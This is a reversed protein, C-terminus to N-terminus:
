KKTKFPNINEINFVFRIREKLSGQITRINNSVLIPFYVEFFDWIGAKLGAEFFFPSINNAGKSYDNLLINIFSKVPIISGKGPLNSTITFSSVWRSYGLSDSISSVLGGETITMQRSWFSKQSSQFRDPYFGQYLYLDRGNRASSSFRYFPYNGSSNIMTGAFLRMELGSNKGRYSYKYNLDVSTKQYTKGSEFYLLFRYPNIIGTREIQYGTQLYSLMTAPVLSEIQNLDSATTYYGYLKQSVTSTFNSNRLFVEVGIKARKFDKNGPAGFKQGEVSFSALRVISNYPITNLTIKGYGTLKNSGFSYFPMMLYNVPKPLLAANQLAIGAMFGDSHSWNASPFYILYRKDPDEITYLLQIRLPDAKPFIGSTRINNNLRYLETMKHEPDIKLEPYDPNFTNIWKKGAFGDEWRMSGISDKKLGAILLPSNMEGNNKILLKHDKYKLIKYDLRKTTGLFDDFFWRLDKDTHSEFVASLDDPGPHKGSWESYYDHMISDFLSDGLYARLYNFGQAAKDYIITAYNDYSYATAKLNVPQDLNSRSTVLWQIENARDVPMNLIDFFRATKRNFSLEWLKKEPYRKEMYRFEYASALSEDMFPYRRENSGLASYFWSHCIEHAIVEDLFYPDQEDGIVTLGPYEMGAGANLSSQVAIYSNYPYDGIWESFLWIANNVYNIADKWVLKGHNTYMVWTTVERGSDPLKVKGKRVHFRKDAFWAFDHINNETYRLTKTKRSSPPFYVDGLDPTKIGLSDKSLMDLWELEDANHLNGTAGVVYNSPLTISVDFRGFESYFEGQDLYPM